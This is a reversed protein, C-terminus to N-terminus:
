PNPHYRSPLLAKVAAEIQLTLEELKQHDTKSPSVQIPQGFVVTIPKRLYIKRGAPWAEYSGIVAVPVVTAGTRMAIAAAGTKFNSLRGDRARTGEPFIGFITGSNLARIAAKIAGIDSAGREVPIVGLQPLLWSLVPMKFPESRAMFTMKRKLASGIAVPDAISFHNAALLVPGQNPVNEAGIVRFGFLVRLLFNALQWVAWYVM